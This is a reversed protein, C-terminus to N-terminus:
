GHTRTGYSLKIFIHLFVGHKEKLRRKELVFAVMEKCRFTPVHNRSEKDDQNTGKQSGMQTHIQIM